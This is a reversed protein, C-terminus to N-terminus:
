GGYLRQTLTNHAGRNGRVTVRRGQLLGVEKAAVRRMQLM